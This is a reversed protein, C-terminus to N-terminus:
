PCIVVQDVAWTQDNVVIALYHKWQPIYCNKPKQPGETIWSTVDTPLLNIVIEPDGHTVRASWDALNRFTAPIDQDSSIFRQTVDLAYLVPVSLRQTFTNYDSPPILQNTWGDVVAPGRQFTVVQEKMYNSVPVFGSGAAQLAVIRGADEATLDARVVSGYINPPILVERSVVIEGFSIRLIYRGARLHDVEYVTGDIKAPDRTQEGLVSDVSMIEARVMPSPLVGYVASAYMDEDVRVSQIQRPRAEKHREDLTMTLHRALGQVAVLQESEGSCHKTRTHFIYHGSPISITTEWVPANFVWQPSLRVSEVTKSIDDISLEPADAANHTCEFVTIAVQAGPTQSKGQAGFELFGLLVCGVLTGARRLKLRRLCIV